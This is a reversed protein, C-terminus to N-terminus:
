FTDLHSSQVGGLHGITQCLNIKPSETRLFKNGVDSPPDAVAARRGM